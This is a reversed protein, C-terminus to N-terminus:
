GLHIQGADVKVLESASMSTNEAHIHAVHEARYDITGAMVHDVEAVSRYSTHSHQMLREVFLERLKGVLTSESINAHLTRVFTELAGLLVRGRKAEVALEDDSRLALATQAHLELRGGARLELDGDVSLQTAADTQTRELVAVIFYDDGEALFWVRDGVRPEVLCSVARKGLVPARQQPDDIVFASGRSELVIASGQRPPSALPARDLNHAHM